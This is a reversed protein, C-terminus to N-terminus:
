CHNLAISAMHQATSRGCAGPTLASEARTSSNTNCSSPENTCFSSMRCGAQRETVQQGGGEGESCAQRRAPVTAHHVDQCCHLILKKILLYSYQSTNLIGVYKAFVTCSHYSCVFLRLGLINDRCHYVIKM